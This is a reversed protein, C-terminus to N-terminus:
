VLCIKGSVLARDRQGQFWFASSQLVSSVTFIYQPVIMFVVTCVFDRSAWLSAIQLQVTMLITSKNNNNKQKKSSNIYKSRATMRMKNKNTQKHTHTHTHKTQKNNRTFSWTQFPLVFLNRNELTSSQLHQVQIWERLRKESGANQKLWFYVGFWCIYALSSFLLLVGWILEHYFRLVGLLCTAYLLVVRNLAIASVTFTVLARENEIHM